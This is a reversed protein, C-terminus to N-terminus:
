FHPPLAFPYIRHRFVCCMLANEPETGKNIANAADQALQFQPDNASQRFNQQAVIYVLFCLLTVVAAFGLWNKSIVLYKNM